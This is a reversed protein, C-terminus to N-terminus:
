GLSAARLAPPGPPDTEPFDLAAQLSGPSEPRATARTVPQTLLPVSIAEPCTKRRRVGPREASTSRSLGQGGSGPYGRTPYRGSIVWIIGAAARRAGDTGGAADAGSLM